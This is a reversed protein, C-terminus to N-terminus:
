LTESYVILWRSEDEKIEGMKCPELQSFKRSGCILSAPDVYGEEADKDEESHRVVFWRSGDKERQSWSEEYRKVDFERKIDPPTHPYLLSIAPHDAFAAVFIDSLTPFASPSILPHITYPM